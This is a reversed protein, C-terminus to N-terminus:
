RHRRGPLSRARHMCAGVYIRRLGPFAISLLGCIGATVPASFSTGQEGIFYSASDSSYIDPLYMVTAQTVLDPKIRGDATPGRSSFVAVSKDTGRRGRNYRESRRRSCQNFLFRARRQGGFERHDNANRRKSPRSPFLPRPATWASFSYDDPGPGAWRIPLGTKYAVSSSVIDVGLREAWV